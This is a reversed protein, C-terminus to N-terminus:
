FCNTVTSHIPTTWSHRWAGLRPPPESITVVHSPPYPQPQLYQSMVCECRHFACDVALNVNGVPQTHCPHTLM